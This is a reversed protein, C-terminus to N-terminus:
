NCDISEQKLLAYLESYFPEPTTKAICFTKATTCFDFVVDNLGDLDEDNFKSFFLQTIEARFKYELELLSHVDKPSETKEIWNIKM